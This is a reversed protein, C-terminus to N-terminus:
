TFKQQRMEAKGHILVFEGSNNSIFKKAVSWGDCGSRPQWRYKM